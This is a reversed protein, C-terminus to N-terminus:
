NRRIEESHLDQLISAAILTASFTTKAVSPDRSGAGCVPTIFTKELPLSVGRKTLESRLYNVQKVIEEPTINSRYEGVGLALFGGNDLFNNIGSSQAAAILFEGYDGTADVAVIGLGPTNFFLELDARDCCHAGTNAGSMAAFETGMIKKADTAILMSSGERALSPEDLFLIANPNVEQMERLQWRASLLYAHSIIDFYDSYIIPKRNQDTITTAWTYLGTHQGKLAIAKESLPSHLLEFFGRLHSEPAAYKSLLDNKSNGTLEGTTVAEWDDEIQCLHQVMDTNSELLDTDIFMVGKENIVVGPVAWTFQRNMNNLFGETVTSDGGSIITPVGKPIEVQRASKPYQSWTQIGASTLVPQDLPTSGIFLVNANAAVLRHQDDFQAPREAIRLSAEQAEPTILDCVTETDPLPTKDPLQRDPTM